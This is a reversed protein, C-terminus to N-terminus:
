LSVHKTQKSVWFGFDSVDWYFLASCPTTESLLSVWLCGLRLTCGDALSAKHWCIALTKLSCLLDRERHKWILMSCKWHTCLMWLYFFACPHLVRYDTCINCDVTVTVVELKVQPFDVTGPLECLVIILVACVVCLLWKWYKTHIRDSKRNGILVNLSSPCALECMLWNTLVTHLFTRKLVLLLM